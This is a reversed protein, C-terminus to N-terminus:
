IADTHQYCIITADDSDFAAVSNDLLEDLHAQSLLNKQVVQRLMTEDLVAGDSCIVLVDNKALELTTEQPSLVRDGSFWNELVDASSSHPVTLRRCQGDPGTTAHYAPSDGAWLLHATNGCVLAFTISAGSVLFDEVDEFEARIQHHLRQLIELLSGDCAYIPTNAILWRAVSGGYPHSGIGDAVALLIRRDGIQWAGHHDENESHKQGCRTGGLWIM